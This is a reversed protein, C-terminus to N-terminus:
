QTGSKHQLQLHRLARVDSLAQELCPLLDTSQTQDEDNDFILSTECDINDQLWDILIQLGQETTLKM